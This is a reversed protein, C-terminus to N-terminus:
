EFNQINNKIKNFMWFLNNCINYTIPNKSKLIVFYVNIMFIDTRGRFINTENM